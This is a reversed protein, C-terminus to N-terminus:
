DVSLVSRERSGLADALAHARAGVADVGCRAIVVVPAPMGGGSDLHRIIAASNAEDDSPNAGTREDLVHMRGRESAALTSPQPQAFFGATPRFGATLMLVVNYGMASGLGSVVARMDVGDVDGPVVIVPAGGRMTALQAIQAAIRSRLPRHTTM